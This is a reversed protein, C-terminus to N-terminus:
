INICASVNHSYMGLKVFIDDTCNPGGEYAILYKKKIFQQIPTFQKFRNQSSRIQLKLFKSTFQVFALCTVMDYCSEISSNREVIMVEYESQLVLIRADWFKIRLDVLPGM